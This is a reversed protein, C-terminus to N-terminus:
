FWRLGRPYFNKLVGQSYKGWGLPYSDVAVLVWVAFLKTGQEDLSAKKGELRLAEGRLFSQLAPDDWSLDIVRQCDDAQLGMALAHSPEFRYGKGTQDGRSEPKSKLSGLWWGPHILHLGSLEPLNDPLIYLYSGVQRLRHTESLLDVLPGQLSNHLFDRFAQYAPGPIRASVKKDRSRPAQNGTIRSRPFISNHFTEPQGSSGNNRLLAIFHGEGATHHPWLRVTKKLESLNYEGAVWEPHGQHSGPLTEREDILEFQPHARLLQAIVAENERPNFTCTSYALSGGPRVLRVAEELISTQRLACSQVLEPSWEQRAIESKRFMGEGSCPADVLVRDFIPELRQALREPSENAIVTNRVGWRELNEALEWVRRPHIENAVLLGQNGMLAALHTSKGGPAACLDLVREGPQPALLEAVAMASPEQLYYLGAAHYPHRGPPFAAARPPEEPSGSDVALWFGALIGPVPQIKHSWFGASLLRNQLAQPSIKLTNARLGTVPPCSFSASFDPFEEGLLRQMRELFLPPIEIV